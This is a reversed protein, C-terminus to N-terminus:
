AVKGARDTEGLRAELTTLRNELVSAHTLLAAELRNLRESTTPEDGTGAQPLHPLLSPVVLSDSDDGSSSAHMTGGELVRLGPRNLRDLARRHQDAQDLANQVKIAASLGDRLRRAEALSLRLDCGTRLTDASEEVYVGIADQEPAEVIITRPLM